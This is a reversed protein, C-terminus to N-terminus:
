QLGCITKVADTGSVCEDELFPITKWVTLKIPVNSKGESAGHKETCIAAYHSNALELLLFQWNSTLDTPDDFSDVVIESAKPSLDELGKFRITFTQFPAGSFGKGLAKVYAEKLTWLKIFEMHQVQPDSIAALFQVEHKSFYRRAFSLINHKISRHKEEVDIGIQSNITVGCAVLSSTHSINFHLPPPHWDDSFQWQVEPKGHINKRFKLSRPNIQSNIQYRAITTRVLARALLASKRLEEGRMQLVNERECPSLIDLYQKLLSESKVESPKVYWLHTEMPAPLQIPTLSPSSHFFTREICHLKMRSFGRRMLLFPFFASCIISLSIIPNCPNLFRISPTKPDCPM